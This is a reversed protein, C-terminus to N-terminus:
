MNKFFLVARYILRTKTFLFLMVALSVVETTFFAYFAADKVFRSDLIQNFVILSQFLMFLLSLLYINKYYASLRTNLISFVVLSICFNSITSRLSNLIYPLSIQSTNILVHSIIEFFTHISKNLLVMGIFIFAYGWLKKANNLNIM